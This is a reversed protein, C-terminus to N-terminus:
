SGLLRINSINNIFYSGVTAQGEFTRIYLNKSLQEFIKCFAHKKAASGSCELDLKTEFYVINIKRFTGHVFKVSSM